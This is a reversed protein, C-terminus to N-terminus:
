LHTSPGGSRGTGARQLRFLLFTAIDMTRRFSRTKQLSDLNTGAKQDAKSLPEHRAAAWFEETQEPNENGTVLSQKVPLPKDSSTYDRISITKKAM